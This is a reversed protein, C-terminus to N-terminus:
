LHGGEGRKPGECLKCTFRPELAGSPPQQVRLESLKRHADALAAAARHTGQGGCRSHCRIGRVRVEPRAYGAPSSRGGQLPMREARARRRISGPSPACPGRSVTREQVYLTERHRTDSPKKRPPLPPPRRNQLFDNGSPNRRDVRINRRCQHVGGPQACRPHEAPGKPTGHRSSATGTGNVTGSPGAQM